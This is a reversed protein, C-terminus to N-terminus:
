GSTLAGRNAHIRMSYLKMQSSVSKQKMVFTLFNAEQDVTMTIWEMSKTTTNSPQLLVNQKFPSEENDSIVDVYLHGGSTDLLFEVHSVYCMFGESRYPNIPITEAYFNIVKSVSGGTTYADFLTSDRNITISTPTAATITYVNSSDNNIQIMGDVDEVIVEDGVQFASPSVTLVASSAQTIASINTYYDDFDKNIEYIFGLDDGALTKQVEDGLGIQGWLEETTQWQAWSQNGSTEDIDEWNLNLGIDCQGFVSLRLNYKSWSLEEYNFILVKNQTESDSESEKYSWMLQNNFRDFGGYTLDFKLQDIDDRTFTNIKDDCRVQERGDSVVIGTKGISRVKDDYGIASFKADTGLVTPTRRIFYPNFVDRTKEVTYASRNFNLSMVQGLITFGTLYEYTDAEIAGSGAVNFKDGSGASNRIGSFLVQQNYEVNGITPAIFNLREGFIAVWIAKNLQGSIPATYDPNDNGVGGDTYDKINTGDYFFVSSGAANATIGFGTFVFRPNNNKDPYSTGSIYWNKDVINFGAYAAMSGGFAIQDFIGTGTNYIYLFNTDAALLEKSGDPLIHEFIGIVRTQGALRPAFYALGLRSQLVQRYVYGDELNQYSDAPELFNVGTKSIGTKNGTIEFIDM